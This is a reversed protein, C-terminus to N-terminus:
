NAYEFNRNPSPIMSRSATDAVVAFPAVFLIWDCWTVTMPHLLFCATFVYLTGLSAFVLSSQYLDGTPLQCIRKRMLPLWSLVTFLFALVALIGLDGWLQLFANHTVQSDALSGHDHDFRIGTSLLGNGFIPSQAIDEIASQYMRLRGADMMVLSEFVGNRSVNFEALRAIPGSEFFDDSSKSGQFILSVVAVFAFCGIRLKHFRERFQFALIIFVVPIFFFATRSGDCWIVYTMAAVGCLSLFISSKKKALFLYSIFFFFPFLVTRWMSGPSSLVTGLRGDGLTLGSCFTFGLTSGACFLFQIIGLIIMSRGLVGSACPTQNIGSAVAFILTLKGGWVVGKVLEDSLIGGIVIVAVLIYQPISLRLPGKAYYCLCVFLLVSLLVDAYPFIIENFSELSVVILWVGLFSYFLSPPTSCRIGTGDLENRPTLRQHLPATLNVTSM